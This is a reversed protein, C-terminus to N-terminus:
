EVVLGNPHSDIRQILEHALVEYGHRLVPDPLEQQLASFGNEFVERVRQWSLNPTHDLAWPSPLLTVLVSPRGDLMGGMADGQQALQARFKDSQFKATKAELWVSPLEGVGFGIDGRCNRKNGSLKLSPYRFVNVRSSRLLFDAAAEAQPSLQGIARLLPRLFLSQPLIELARLLEWTLAEERAWSRKLAPTRYHFWHLVEVLYSRQAACTGRWHANETDARDRGVSRGSCPLTPWLGLATGVRNRTPM